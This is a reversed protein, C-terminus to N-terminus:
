RKSIAAREKPMLQWLPVFKITDSKSKGDLNTVKMTMANAGSLRVEVPYKGSNFRLTNDSTKAAFNVYGAPSIKDWTGKAPPGYVYYGLVLGDSVAETVILMKQRGKGTEVKGVWIGVYRRIPAPVDVKTEGIAFAPMKLKLQVGVAAVRQADEPTFPNQDDGGVPGRKQKNPSQEVQAPANATSTDVSTAPLWGESHLQLTDGTRPDRVCAVLKKEEIALRLILNAQKRRHWEEELEADFTEPDHGVTKEFERSKQLVELWHEDFQLPNVSASAADLIEAVVDLVDYFADTLRIANKPIADHSWRLQDDQDAGESTGRDDRSV